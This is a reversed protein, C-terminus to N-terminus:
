DDRGSLGTWREAEPDNTLLCYACKEGCCTEILRRTVGVLDVPMGLHTAVESRIQDEAALLRAKLLEIRAPDGSEKVFPIDGKPLSVIVTVRRLDGANKNQLGPLYEGRVPNSIIQWLVLQHNALMTEPYNAARLKLSIENRETESRLTIKRPLAAASIASSLCLAAIGASFLKSNM